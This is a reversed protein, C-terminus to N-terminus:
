SYISKRKKKKKEQCHRICIGHECLRRNSPDRRPERPIYPKICFNHQFIFKLFAYIYKIFKNTKNLETINYRFPLLREELQWSLLPEGTSYRGDFQRILVPVEDDDDDDDEDDDDDDDDEDDNVNFVDMEEM